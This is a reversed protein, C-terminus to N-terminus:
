RTAIFDGRPRKLSSSFSARNLGAAFGLKGVLRASTQEGTKRSVDLFRSSVSCAESEIAFVHGSCVLPGCRGIRVRFSLAHHGGLGRLIAAPSAPTDGGKGVAALVGDLASV